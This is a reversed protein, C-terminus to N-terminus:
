GTEVKRRPGEFSRIIGSCRHPHEKVLRGIRVSTKEPLEVVSVGLFLSTGAVQADRLRASNMFNAM